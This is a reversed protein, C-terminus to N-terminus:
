GDGLLGEEQAMRKLETKIREFRKRLRAAERTIADDDIADTADAAQADGLMVHALDRWAMARDVRLILLMQDDPELRERLARVRSKVDTRMHVQTRSRVRDVLASLGAHRSLTLNRGARRHPSRAHRNAANRALTYVWTRVASRWAFNPLGRWLDEAFLSFAEEADADSRLRAALFALLEDGYGELVCTAAREFDGAECAAKVEAELQERTMTMAGDAM